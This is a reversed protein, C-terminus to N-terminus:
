MSLVSERKLRTTTTAAAPRVATAAAEEKAAEKDAEKAARSDAEDELIQEM